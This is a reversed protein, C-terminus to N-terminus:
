GGTDPSETEMLWAQATDYASQLSAMMREGVALVNEAGIVELAGTKELQLRVSESVEALFLRGGNEKLAAAYREFVGIATSGIQERGRLIVIVASYTADEPSPAEEEFDRAAAFFLSGYPLLMTVRNSQLVAPAPHEEFDGDETPILEIISMREASQFIFLFIQIIVGLFIAQQVPLFLTAILTFLFVAASLSTTNWVKRIEIPKIAQFGALILIAALSTMPLNEIQTAFLLVGVTVFLGTFINSWRSQAGAGVVLATGSVSGGIPLGQFFGAVINGLGQGKFDGDPNPFDGDPNPYGQSVGTAQVLGIIGIAIASLLLEPVLTLNPLMPAPLGGPIEGVLAVSELSMFKVFAAGIILAILMSFSKLPTRDLVLIMVITLAGIGLTALNIQDLNGLLDIVDALYNAGQIEYGTFDSLQGLIIVIAIGTLFGRMVSNSIFRTLWGLKLVGLLLMFLGVLLTLTVMAEVQEEGTYQALADHAALAMASANIVAMYVSSTFISAIPTGVMLNYLGYIPSVGALSATAMGDPIAAVAATLGATIDKSITKRNIHLRNM